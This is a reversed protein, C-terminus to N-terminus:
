SSTDEPAQRILEYALFLMVVLIGGSLVALSSKDFLM